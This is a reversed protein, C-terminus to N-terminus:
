KVYSREEKIQVKVEKGDITDVKYSYSTSIPVTEATIRESNNPTNSTSTFDQDSTPLGKYVKENYNYEQVIMKKNAYGNNKIVVSAVNKLVDPSLAFFVSDVNLEAIYEDQYVLVEEVSSFIPNVNNLVEATVVSDVYNQTIQEKSKEWPYSECSVTVVALLAMTLVSLIFKKKM